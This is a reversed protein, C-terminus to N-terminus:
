FGVPPSTAVTAWLDQIRGGARISPRRRRVARADKARRPAPGTTARPVAHPHAPRSGPQGPRLQARSPRPVCVQADLSDAPM